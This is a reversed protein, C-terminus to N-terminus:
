NKLDDDTAETVMEFNNLLEQAVEPILMDIVSDSVPVDQNGDKLDWKKLCTKLKMDRYIIMDLETRTKGEVSPVQRLCQSYIQNQEKWTMRSWWTKLISIVKKPDHPKEPPGPQLQPQGPAPDPVAKLRDIEDETMYGKSKWRDLEGKSGIFHYTSNGHKEDTKEIYM